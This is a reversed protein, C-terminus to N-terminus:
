TVKYLITKGEEVTKLNLSTVRFGRNIGLHSFDLCGTYLITGIKYGSNNYLQFSGRIVVNYDRDGCRRTNKFPISLNSVPVVEISRTDGAVGSSEERVMPDLQSEIDAIMGDIKGFWNISKIHWECLVKMNGDLKRVGVDLGHFTPYRPEVCTLHSNNEEFQLALPIGFKNRILSLRFLCDLVQCPVNEEYLEKLYNEKGLINKYYEKDVYKLHDPFPYTRQKPWDMSFWLPFFIHRTEVDLDDQAYM